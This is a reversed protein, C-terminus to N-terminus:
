LTCQRNFFPDSHRVKVKVSLPFPSLLSLHSFHLKGLVKLCARANSFAMRRMRFYSAMVLMKEPHFKKRKSFNTQWWYLIMRTNVANSGYVIPMKCFFDAKKLKCQLRPHFVTGFLSQNGLGGVGGWFFSCKGGRLGGAGTARLGNRVSHAGGTSHPQNLRASGRGGVGFLLLSPRGSCVRHDM